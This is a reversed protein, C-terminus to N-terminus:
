PKPTITMQYPVFLALDLPGSQAWSLTNSMGTVQVAYGEGFIASTRRADEAIAELVSPRYQVPNVISLQWGGSINVLSRGAKDIRAVFQEIRGSASDLTDNARIPTKVILSATSTDSRNSDIGLTLTSVMDESFPVLQGDDEISLAIDPASAAARAMSRLTQILETRRGAAERTDNVVWVSVILNDARRSVTVSPVASAAVDQDYRQIRSGTVVIEDYSGADQAMTPFAVATAALASLILKRM